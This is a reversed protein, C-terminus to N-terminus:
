EEPPREKVDTNVVKDVCVRVDVEVTQVAHSLLTAAAELGAMGVEFATETDAGLGVEDARAEKDLEESSIEEYGTEEDDILVGVIVSAVVVSTM